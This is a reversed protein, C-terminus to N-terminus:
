RGVEGMGGEALWGCVWGGKLGGATREGSGGRASEPPPLRSECPAASKPRGSEIGRERERERKRVCVCARARVCVGAGTGATGAGSL